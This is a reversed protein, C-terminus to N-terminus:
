VSPTISASSGFPCGKPSRRRCRINRRRSRVASAGTVAWSATCALISVWRAPRARLSSSVSTTAWHCGALSPTLHGHVQAHEAVVDVLADAADIAAILGVAD